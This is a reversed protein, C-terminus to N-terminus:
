KALSGFLRRYQQLGVRLSETDDEAGSLRQALQERQDAVFEIVESLLHDAEEVARRPEDVFSAQIENWRAGYRDHTAGVLDDFHGQDSPREPEAAERRQEAASAEQEQSQEVATEHEQSQEVKQEVDEGGTRTRKKGGSVKGSM